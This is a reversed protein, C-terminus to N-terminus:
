TMLEPVYPLSQKFLNKRRFELVFHVDKEKFGEKVLEAPTFGNFHYALIQDVNSIGIRVLETRMIEFDKGQWSDIKPVREQIDKPADLFAALEKLQTKFIGRIPQFSADLGFIPFEGLEYETRNLTGYLPAGNKHSYDFLISRQIRTLLNTMQLTNGKEPYTELMPRIDVVHRNRQPLELLDCIRYFEKSSREQENHPLHVGIVNDGGISRSALYGATTSDLGTSLGIVLRSLGDKELVKQTFEIISKATLGVNYELIKPLM